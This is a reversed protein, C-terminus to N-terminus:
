TRPGMFPPRLTPTSEFNKAIDTTSKLLNIDYSFTLTPCFHLPLTPRVIRLTPTSRCQNRNSHWHRICFIPWHRIAFIGGDQASTRTPTNRDGRSARLDSSVLLFCTWRCTLFVGECPRALRRGPGVCKGNQIFTSYGKWHLFVQRAYKHRPIPWRALGEFSM